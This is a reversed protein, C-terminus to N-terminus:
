QLEKMQESKDHDFMTECNKLFIEKTMGMENASVATVYLSAGFADVYESESDILVKEIQRVLDLMKKQDMQMQRLSM